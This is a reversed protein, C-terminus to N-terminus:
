AATERAAAAAWPRRHRAYIELVAAGSETPRYRDVVERLPPSLEEVTPMGFGYQPPLVAPAALAAFTLDAATFRDGVLYLSGGRREQAAAMEEEVVEDARRLAADDIRFYRRILGGVGPRLAEFARRRSGELGVCALRTFMPPDDIVRAYVGLRASPGLREDYRAMLAEIEAREAADHGFLRLGAVDDAHRVIDTSERLVTGDGVVLVPATTARYRMLGLRHLCPAWGDERYPVGALDLAWRAKECYHSLPITVLRRM